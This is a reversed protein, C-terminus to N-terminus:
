HRQLMLICFLYITGNIIYCLFYVWEAGVFGFYFKQLVLVGWNANSMKLSGFSNLIIDIELASCVFLQM